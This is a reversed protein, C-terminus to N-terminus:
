WGPYPANSEPENRTLSPQWPVHCSKSIFRTADFAPSRPKPSALAAVKVEESRGHTASPRRRGRLGEESPPWAKSRSVLLAAKARVRVAPWISSTKKLTASRVPRDQVDGLLGAPESMRTAQSVDVRVRVGSSTAATWASWWSEEWRLSAVVMSPETEDVAAPGGGDFRQERLHFDVAM